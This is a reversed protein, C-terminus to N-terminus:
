SGMVAGKWCHDHSPKRRAHSRGQGPMCPVAAVGAVDFRGLGLGHERQEGHEATGPLLLSRARQRLQEIAPLM